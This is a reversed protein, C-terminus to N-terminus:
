RPDHTSSRCLVSIWQRLERSAADAGRVVQTAKKGTSVDHTMVIHLLINDPETKEDIRASVYYVGVVETRGPKGREDV